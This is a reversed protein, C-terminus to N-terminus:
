PSTGITLIVPDAPCQLLCNFYTPNAETTWCLWKKHAGHRRRCVEGDVFQYNYECCGVCEEGILGTCDRREPIPRPRPKQGGGAEDAGSENGGGGGGSPGGSEGPNTNTPAGHGPGEWDPDFPADGEIEIVEGDSDESEGSWIASETERVSEDPLACSAFACALVSCVVFRLM